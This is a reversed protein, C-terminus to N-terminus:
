FALISVIRVVLLEFILELVVLAVPVVELLLADEFDGVLAKSFFGNVAEVLSLFHLSLVFAAKHQFILLCRHVFRVKDFFCLLLVVPLLFPSHEGIPVVVQTLTVLFRASQLFLRLLAPELDILRVLIGNSPLHSLVLEHLYEVIPIPVLMVCENILQDLLLLLLPLPHPLLELPLIAHFSHSARLVHILISPYLLHKLYGSMLLQPLILHFSIIVTLGLFAGDLLRLLLVLSGYLSQPM